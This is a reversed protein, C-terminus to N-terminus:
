KQQFKRQTLDSYLVYVYIAMLPIYFIWTLIASIWPIFSIIYVVVLAVGYGLLLRIAIPWFHGKVLFISHKIGEFVTSKKEIMSYGTFIIYTSFIASGIPLLATLYDFGQNLIDQSFAGFLTSLLILPIFAILMGFMSVALFIIAFWVARLLMNGTKQFLTFLPLDEKEFIVIATSTIRFIQLLLMLLLLFLTTLSFLNNLSLIELLAENFASSILTVGIGLGLLVTLIQTGINIGAIKFFHHVYLELTKQYLESISIINHHTNKQM